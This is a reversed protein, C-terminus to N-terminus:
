TTSSQICRNKKNDFHELPVNSKRGPGRIFKRRGTQQHDVVKVM